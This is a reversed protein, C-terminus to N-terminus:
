FFHHNLIHTCKDTNIQYLSVLARIHVLYHATSQQFNFYVRQVRYQCPCDFKIAGFKLQGKDACYMSDGTHVSCLFYFAKHRRVSHDVTGASGLLIFTTLFVVRFPHLSFRHSREAPNEGPTNGECQV